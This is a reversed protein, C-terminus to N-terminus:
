GSWILHVLIEISVLGLSDIEVWVLDLSGSDRSLLGLSGSDRSVLGLSDIEGTVLGISRIEDCEQMHDKYQYLSLAIKNLAYFHSGFFSKVSHKQVFM